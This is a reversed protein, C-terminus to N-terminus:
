MYIDLTLDLWTTSVSYQSLFFFFSTKGQVVCIVAFLIQQYAYNKEKMEGSLKQLVTGPVKVAVLLIHQWAAPVAM